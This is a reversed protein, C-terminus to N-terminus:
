SIISAAWIPASGPASGIFIVRACSIITMRWRTSSSVLSISAASFASPKVPGTPRWTTSVPPPASNFFM